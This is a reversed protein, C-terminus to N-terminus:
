MRFLGFREQRDDHATSAALSLALSLRTESPTIIGDDWMRATAYYPHGETEYKQLIQEFFKKEEESNTKAKSRAAQAKKVESLVTAAQTGGMVSIRSNPWSFLFRPDYARGCMGYNGAGFSGGIIVTFKPVWTTAVATVMKAGHKAIGENEYAKGVMFGAINQLFLLPIGRQSCLEIFHAAKLASESFLIGDNALIGVRFGEIHGFGCKITPAYSAKFQDFRSGDLLRALVEIVSFNKKLDTGVIGEIEAPDYLPAEPAQEATLRPTRDQGPAGLTRIITRARELAQHENECLHDAVGSIRCHVDAGGLEEPTVIEGTAAKVLPPGGLFITANGRVMITEDSMAPVYAGGATCSGTVVSIQPIGLSSMRAQNFFIRGFHQRDPFVEAQLPLFAGGSDVIYVCPLRNELAIEQARLHKKITMPYYTGGKVLPNNAVVMCVQGNIRGIATALGCGPPVGENMDLGALQGLELRPTLPDFLLNLRERTLLKNRSRSLAISDESEPAVAQERKQRLDDLLAQYARQKEVFEASNTQIQSTLITM